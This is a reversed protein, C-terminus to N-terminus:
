RQVRENRLAQWPRFSVIADNTREGVPFTPPIHAAYSRLIISQNM